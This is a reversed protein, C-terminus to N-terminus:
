FRFSVFEILDMVDMGGAQKLNLVCFPCPALVVDAGSTKADEIKTKALDMAIDPYGSLLGGGGGCCRDPEPM